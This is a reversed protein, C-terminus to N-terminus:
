SAVPFGARALRSKVENFRKRLDAAQEDTPVVEPNHRLAVTYAEQAHRLNRERTELNETMEAIDLFTHATKLETLLFQVGAENFERQMRSASAGM